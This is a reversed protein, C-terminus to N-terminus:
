LCSPRSGSDTSTVEPVRCAAATIPPLASIVWTPKAWVMCATPRPPASTPIEVAKSTYGIASTSELSAILRSPMVSVMDSSSFILRTFPTRMPMVEGPELVSSNMRVMMSTRPM